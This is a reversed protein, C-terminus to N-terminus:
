GLGLLFVVACNALLAGAQLALIELTFTMASRMWKFVFFGILPIQGAMLIQWLHATPGEDAAHGDGFIRPGVLIIILALVSMALPLLASPKRAVVRFSLTLNNMRGGPIPFVHERLASCVVDVCTRIGGDGEQLLLLLEEGYRARWRRPYVSLLMRALTPSM